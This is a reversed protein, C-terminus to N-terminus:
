TKMWVDTMRLHVIIYRTREYQNGSSIYKLASFSKWIGQTCNMHTICMRLHCVRNWKLKYSLVLFTHACLPFYHM